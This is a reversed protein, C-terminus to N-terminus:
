LMRWHIWSLVGVILAFVIAFPILLAGLSWIALFLNGTDGTSSLVSWWKEFYGIM